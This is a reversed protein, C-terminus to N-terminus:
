EVILRSNCPNPHRQGFAVWSFSLLRRGFISLRWAEDYSYQYNEAPHQQNLLDQLSKWYYKVIGRGGNNPDEPLRCSSYLDSMGLGVGTSAYDGINQWQGCRAAFYM